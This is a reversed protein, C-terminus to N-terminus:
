LVQRPLAASRWSFSLRLFSRSGTKKKYTLTDQSDLPAVAKQGLAKVEAFEENTPPELSIKKIGDVTTSYCRSLATSM